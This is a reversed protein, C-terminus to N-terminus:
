VCYSILKRLEVEPDNILWEQRKAANAFAFLACLVIFFKM